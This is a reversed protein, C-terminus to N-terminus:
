DFSLWDGNAKIEAVKKDHEANTRTFYIKGNKDAVFFLYDSNDPNVSAELSSSSFNCIPGVPMKGVMNVARTNYANEGAFQGSSLDTSMPLQLGYYTTVDSGMNMGSSLRNRFVSVITKRNSTNTGELEVISAMTIYYHVDKSISDKYESLKKDMEDLMTIIIDKIEVDGNDFHYTDPALYGELPYYIDNNLIKDTLFWYKNILEKAYVRDKFVSIVEDYSHNTKTSITKAYDTIRQGEKFTIVVLNPNYNSGSELSKVIKSLNMNKKLIYTDAKLSSVKNLRVYLVFLTKSRILDKEKLITAIQSTSTGNPITVEIKGNNSRDVPSALFLWVAGILIFLIAIAIIVILLPKPKTKTKTKVEM